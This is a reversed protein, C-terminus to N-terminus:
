GGNSELAAHYAQLIQLASTVAEGLESPALPLDRLQAREAVKAMADRISRCERPEIVHEQRVVIFL